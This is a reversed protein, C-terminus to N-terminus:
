RNSTSFTCRRRISSRIDLKQKQWSGGEWFPLPFDYEKQGAFEYVSGLIDGVVAGLLCSTSPKKM